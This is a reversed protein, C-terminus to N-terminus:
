ASNSHYARSVFALVGPIHIPEVELELSACEIYLRDRERRGDWYTRAFRKADARDHYSPVNASAAPAVALAAAAAAVGTAILKRL